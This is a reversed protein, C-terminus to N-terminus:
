DKTEPKRANIAWDYDLWEVRTSLKADLRMALETSFGAAYHLSDAALQEFDGGYWLYIRTLSATEGAPDLMFWRPDRHMRLSQDQLQSEIRDDRYAEKRLPPCGISACNIAFHIRPERFRARLYDNEIDELSLLLDGVQWRRAEWRDASPIDRISGLPWHDLILRLTFANYANILLALKADRSLAQFDVDGLSAIYADLDGTEESLKAYDVLGADSVRAELVRDFQSHDFRDGEEQDGYAEILRVSAPGFARELYACAQPLFISGILALGLVLFVRKM